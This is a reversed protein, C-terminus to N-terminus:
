DVPFYSSASRRYYRVIGATLLLLSVVVVMTAVTVMGVEIGINGPHAM